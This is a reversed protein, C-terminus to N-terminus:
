AKNTKDMKDVTSKIDKEYRRLFYLKSSFCHMISMFDDMLEQQPSKYTNNLVVIQCKHLSCFWEVFDFGFRCLRDKHAIVITKIESEAVKEMLKILKKRKFNLGSGYESYCRCNPYSRGLYEIESTLDESQSRTSVRAYQVVSRSDVGDILQEISSELYRRHGGPSKILEIKGAEAWRALTRPHYGFKEQAEIPTLAM